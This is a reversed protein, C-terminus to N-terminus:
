CTVDSEGYREVLLRLVDQVNTFNRFTCLFCTRYSVDPEKGYPALNDVIKEVTGARLTRVKQSNWQLHGEDTSETSVSRRYRVRKLCVSFIAGEEREEGLEQLYLFFHDLHRATSTCLLSSLISCLHSLTVYISPVHIKQTSGTDVDFGNAGGWDWM